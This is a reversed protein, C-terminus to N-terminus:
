LQLHLQLISAPLTQGFAQQPPFALSLEGTLKRALLHWIVREQVSQLYHPDRRPRHAFERALTPGIDTRRHRVAQIHDRDFGSEAAVDIVLETGVFTDEDFRRCM